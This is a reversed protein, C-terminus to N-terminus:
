YVTFKIENIKNTLKDIQFSLSVSGTDQDTFVYRNTKANLLFLGGFKTKDDGLKLSLGKVEVIVSPNKVTIYTLHYDNGSDTEDEFGFSINDNFIFKALFPATDNNQEHTDNGFYSKLTTLNGKSEMINGLKIDNFQIGEFLEQDNLNNLQARCSISLFLTILFIITINKM